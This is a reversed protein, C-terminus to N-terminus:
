GGPRLDLASEGLAVRVQGEDALHRRRRRARVSGRRPAIALDHEGLVWHEVALFTPSPRLSLSGRPSRLEYARAPLESASRALLSKAERYPFFLGARAPSM